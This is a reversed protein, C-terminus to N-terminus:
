GMLGRRLLNLASLALLILMWRKFRVPDLRDQVRQGLWMGLGMPAVLLLSLPATAANLM